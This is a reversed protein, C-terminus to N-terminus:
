RAGVSENVTRGGMKGGEREGEGGGEREGARECEGGGGDRRRM